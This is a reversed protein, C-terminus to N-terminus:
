SYMKWVFRSAAIHLYSGPPTLANSSLVTVGDPEFFHMKFIKEVHQVNLGGGWRARM